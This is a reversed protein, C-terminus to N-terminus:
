VEYYERTHEGVQMARIYWKESSWLTGSTISFDDNRLNNLLTLLASGSVDEGSSTKWNRVKIQADTIPTTIM